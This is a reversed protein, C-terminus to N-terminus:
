EKNKEFLKHAVGKGIHNKHVYMLNLYEGNKLSSFGVIEVENEAIIFYENEISNKLKHAKKIKNIWATKQLHSYDNKCSEIITEECLITLEDLDNLTAERLNIKNLM